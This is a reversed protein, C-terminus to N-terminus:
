DSLQADDLAVAGRQALRRGDSRAAGKRAEREALVLDALDLRSGPGDRSRQEAASCWKKADYTTWRPTPIQLVRAYYFAHQSPDFDPDTWVTKLEVAGITNKYSASKM